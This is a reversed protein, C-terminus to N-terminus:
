NPPFPTINFYLSVQVVLYLKTGGPVHRMAYGGIHLNGRVFKPQVPCLDDMPLSFAVLLLTGDDLLRWHTINSFDRPDTPWVPKYVLREVGTQSSFWKLRQTQDILTDLDRRCDGRSLLQFIEHITYPLMTEGRVCILNEASDFYKSALINEKYWLFVWPINTKTVTLNLLKTVHAEIENKIEEPLDKCVEGPGVLEMTVTDLCVVRATM